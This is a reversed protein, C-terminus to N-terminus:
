RSAVPHRRWRRDGDGGGFPWCSLNSSQPACSWPMAPALPPKGDLLEIATIGLSWLDAKRGYGAERVTDSPLPAYSSGNAVVEPAMWYPSGVFTHAASM